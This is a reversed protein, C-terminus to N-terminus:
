GLRGLLYQLFGIALVVLTWGFDLAVPGLRIPKIFKRVFKLPPDTVTLVSETIVLVIGRPQWSPNVSLILDAILRAIMLYFYIQLAWLLAVM